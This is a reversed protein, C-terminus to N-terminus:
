VFYFRPNLSEERKTQVPRARVITLPPADNVIAFGSSSCLVAPRAASPLKTNGSSLSATNRSSRSSSLQCGCAGDQLFM